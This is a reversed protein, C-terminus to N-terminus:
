EDGPQGHASTAADIVGVEILDDVKQQFEDVKEDLENYNRIGHKAKAKELTHRFARFMSNSLSIM